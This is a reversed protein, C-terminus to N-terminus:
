QELPKILPAPDVPPLGGPEVPPATSPDLVPLPVDGDPNIIPLQNDANGSLPSVDAQGYSIMVSPVFGVEGSDLEVKTYSGSLAVIKMPTGQELLKDAAQDEKPKDKYFAANNIAATVFQGPRLETGYSGNNVQASPPRLPDIDSGNLSTGTPDCATFALALPAAILLKANMIKSHQCALSNPDVHKLTGVANGAKIGALSPNVGHM